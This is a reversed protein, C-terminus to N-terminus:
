QSRQRCTYSFVSEEIITSVTSLIRVSLQINERFFCYFYKFLVLIALIQISPRFSDTKVYTNRNITYRPYTIYNAVYQIYKSTTM